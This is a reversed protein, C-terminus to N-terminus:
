TSVGSFDLLFDLPFNLLFVKSSFLAASSYKYTAPDTWNTATFIHPTSYKMSPHHDRWMGVLSGDPKIVQEPSTTYTDDFPGM